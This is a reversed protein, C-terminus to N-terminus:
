SFKEVFKEPDELDEWIMEWANCLKGHLIVDKHQLHAAIRMLLVNYQEQLEALTFGNGGTHFNQMREILKDISSKLRIKEILGVARSKKLANALLELDVIEEETAPCSQLAVSPIGSTSGDSNETLLAATLVLAMVAPIPLVLKFSLTM